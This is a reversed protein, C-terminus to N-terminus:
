SKMKRGVRAIAEEFLSNIFRTKRIAEYYELARQYESRHECVMGLVYLADALQKELDFDDPPTELSKQAYEEAKDFDGYYLYCEALLSFYHASREERHQRYKKYFREEEQIMRKFYAQAVAGKGSLLHEIGSKLDDRLLKNKSRIEYWMAEYFNIISFGDEEPALKMADAYHKQAAKFDLLYLYNLMGLSRQMEFDNLLEKPLSRIYKKVADNGKRRKLFIMYEYQLSSNDAGVELARRYYDEAAAYDGLADYAEAIRSLPWTGLDFIEIGKKLVEILEEHRKERAYKVSLYLYPNLRYRNIDFYMLAKDYYEQAEDYEGLKVSCIGLFTLVDADYPQIENAKLLDEMANEYVGRSYYYGGRDYYNDHTPEHEIALTKYKVTQTMDGMEAYVDSIYSYIDYREPDLELAKEYARISGEKDRTRAMAAGIRIQYIADKPYKESLNRYYAIAPEIQDTLVMLYGRDLEISRNLPNNKAAEEIMEIAEKYMRQDRYINSAEQYIVALDDDGLEEEEQTIQTLIQTIINMAKEYDRNMRALKAEHLDTLYDPLEDGEANKFQELAEEFRGKLNWGDLMLLRYHLIRKLYPLYEYAIELLRMAESYRELRFEALGTLYLLPGVEGNRQMAETNMTVIDEFRGKDLYMNSLTIYADLNREDVEIIKQIYREANDEDGIMTYAHSKSRYMAALEQADSVKADESEEKEDQESKKAEDRKTKLEEWLGIERIANEFRETQVSLYGKLKYYKLRLEEDQAEFSDLLAYARELEEREYYCWALSIKQGESISELQELYPVLRKNLLKAIEESDRGYGYNKNFDYYAEKAAELDDQALLMVEYLRLMRNDPELAKLREYATEAQELKECLLLCKLRLMLLNAHDPYLNEFDATLAEAEDYQESLIHYDAKMQNYYPHYINLDDLEAMLAPVRDQDNWMASSLDICLEIFRDYDAYDDGDFYDFRYYEGEEIVSFVYNFFGEPFHNNLEERRAAWNFEENFLRFAEGSLRFNDMLFRILRSEAERRTDIQQVLPNQLLAKWNEIRIRKGFNQYLALAEETLESFKDEESKTYELAQEYATRLMMFGEPNDEPNNDQLQLRYAETIEEQSKTSEIGLIKWIDM